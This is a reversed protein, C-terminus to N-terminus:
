GFEGSVAQRISLEIRRRKRDVSLVKVRIEEGPTVVEEPASVRYESLESLHVLGEVGGIDVFAGFDVLRTVPGTVIEGVPIAAFPDQSIQRISLSVRRKKVKVDLVKVSVEQGVKLAHKPHGVRKWSLESLHVLGTVGGLDVFAGYDVLSAVTGTRTEGVSLGVLLDHVAKRQEKLLLSRRSLVLREKAVDLELVKLEITQGAFSKLDSLPELSLHSSPVFGRVGVDVVLGRDSVSTVKASLAEHAEAAAAIRDWAQKKVAWTRSLVVRKQPDERALIAGEARDGVSLTKTPDSGADDFNRRNIIAPRGDDLTLTVEESTVASVIGGVIKGSDGPEAKETPGSPPAPVAAATDGISPTSDASSAPAATEPGAAESSTPASEPTVAEPEPDVAAPEPDTTAPKAAVSVVGGDADGAGTPESAAAEPQVSEPQVSEPEAVVASDQGASESGELESTELETTELESTESEALDVAQKDAESGAESTDTMPEVEGIVDLVPSAQEPVAVEGEPEAVQNDAKQDPTAGDQLETM